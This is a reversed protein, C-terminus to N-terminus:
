WAVALLGTGTSTGNASTLITLFCRRGIVSFLGTMTPPSVGFGSATPTYAFRNPYGMPSAAHSYYNYTIPDNTLTYDTGGTIGISTASPVSICAFYKFSGGQKLRIKDGVAYKNSSDSVTTVTASSYAWTDLPSIWGEGLASIIEAVNRQWLSGERIKVRRPIRAPITGETARIPSRSGVRFDYHERDLCVMLGHRVRGAISREVLGVVLPKMQYDLLELLVRLEDHNRVAFPRHADGLHEVSYRHLRLADALLYADPEIFVVRRFFRRSHCLSIDPNRLRRRM